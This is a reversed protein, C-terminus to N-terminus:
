STRAHAPETGAEVPGRGGAPLSFCFRAGVPFGPEYWISGGMAEVLRRTITLGLGIGSSSRADGRSVQEFREFIAERFDEPVGPGNDAVVLTYGEPSRSAEVTVHDGGYKRANELLNRLVQEVRNPDAHVIVSGDIQVTAEKDGGPPFLLDAIRYAAPRLEFDVPELLLRGAELRPIALVDDVLNQLHETEGRIIGLFEDVEAGDLERWSEQVAMTFGSINTLPTRLEHSVMSVFENKMESARREAHLATSLRERAEKLRTAGAMLLVAIGVLLIGTELLGILLDVEGSGTGMSPLVTARLAILGLASALLWVLHPTGAFVVTVVILYALFAALSAEPHDGAGVVLAGVLVDLGISPLAGSTLRIRVLADAVLAAFAAARLLSGDDGVVAGIAAAALFCLGAFARVRQFTRRMAEYDLPAASASLPGPDLGNTETTM